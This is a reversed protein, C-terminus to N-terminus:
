EADSTAKKRAAPEKPIQVDEPADVVIRNIITEWPNEVAVELKDPTKGAVREVILNAARIRDGFPARPDNAINGLVKIADVFESQFLQQGRKLLERVMRDHLDKPIMKPPRGRFHGGADRPMGRALEEDDLDEVAIEGSILKALRPSQIRVYAEQTDGTTRNKRVRVTM